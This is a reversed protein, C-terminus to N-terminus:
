GRVIPSAKWMVLNWASAVAAPTSAPDHLHRRVRDGRGIRLPAGAEQTVLHM